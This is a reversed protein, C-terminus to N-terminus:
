AIAELPDSDDQVKSKKGKKPMDPVEKMLLETLKASLDTLQHQLSAIQEDKQELKHNLELMPANDKTKQIFNRATDRDTKVGIGLDECNSDNLAALQEVYEIHKHKYIEVKSPDNRFLMSLPTGIFQGGNGRMFANWQSPYKRIDSQVALKLIKWKGSAEDFEVTDYVPRHIKSRGLEFEKTIYVVNKSVYRGAQDSLFPQEIGEVSFRVHVAGPDTDNFTERDQYSPDLGEIQLPELM